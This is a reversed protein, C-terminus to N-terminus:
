AHARILDLAQNMVEMSLEVVALTEGDREFDALLIAVEARKLRASHDRHQRQLLASYTELHALRSVINLDAAQTRELVYRFYPGRTLYARLLASTDLFLSVGSM